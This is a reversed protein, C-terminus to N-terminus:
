DVYPVGDNIVLDRLHNSGCLFVGNPVGNNSVILHLALVSGGVRGINELEKNIFSISGHM